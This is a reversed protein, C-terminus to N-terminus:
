RVIVDPTPFNKSDHAPFAALESLDITM